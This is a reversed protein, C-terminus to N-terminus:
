WTIETHRDMKRRAIKRWKKSPILATLARIVFRKIKQRRMLSRSNRVAYSTFIPYIRRTNGMTVNFDNRSEDPIDINYRIINTSLQKREHPYGSEIILFHINHRNGEYKHLIQECCCLVEEDNHSQGISFWILLTKRTSLDRQFRAIRRNYKERVAPYTESLPLGKKFDHYHKLGNTKNYYYDHPFEIGHESDRERLELDAEEMFHEFDSTIIQTRTHLSGGALWDLPGSAFRMQCRRLYLAAGCTDGISYAIDFSRCNVKSM